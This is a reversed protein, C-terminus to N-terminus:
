NKLKKNLHQERSQTLNQPFKRGNGSLDQNACERLDDTVLFLLMHDNARAKVNSQFTMLMDEHMYM